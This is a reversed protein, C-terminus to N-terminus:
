DTTDLWPQKDWSILAWRIHPGEEPRSEEIFSLRPYQGKQYLIAPLYFYPPIRGAGVHHHTFHPGRRRGAELPYTVYVRRLAQQHLRKLGSGMDAILSSRSAIVVDAQPLPQGWETWDACVATIQQACGLQHARQQLKELMKASFDLAFVRHQRQAVALTVAGAGCGVDLVTEGKQLAVAAMLAQVYGDEQWSMGIKEARRDWQEPRSVSRDMSQFHERYLAAFDIEDIKKM